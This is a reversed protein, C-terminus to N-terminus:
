YKSEIKKVGGRFFNSILLPIISILFLLTMEILDRRSLAEETLYFDVKHPKYHFNGRCFDDKKEKVIFYEGTLSKTFPNLSIFEGYSYNPSTYINFGYRPLVYHNGVNITKRVLWEKQKQTLFKM